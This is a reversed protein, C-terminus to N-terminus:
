EVMSIAESVKRSTGGTNMIVTRYGRKQLAREAHWLFSGFFPQSSDPLLVGVMGSKERGSNKSKLMARPDYSLERAIKKIHEKKKEEVYGNGSLARSVTGVGVGAAKAVDRMTAM